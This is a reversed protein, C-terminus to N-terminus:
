KKLLIAYQDPLAKSNNDAGEIRATHWSELTKRIRFNGKDIVKGKSFNIRHGHTWAHNAINSSAEFKKVNRIHEKKRTEFARGTEGIYNWPCDSCPIQYVVNTERESPVRYKPSPFEKQLTRLPRNAVKINHKKLIRTLPETFELIYPLVAIGNPKNNQGIM